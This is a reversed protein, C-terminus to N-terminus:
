LDLLVGQFRQCWRGPISISGAAIFQNVSSRLGICSSAKVPTVMTMLIFSMCLEQLRAYYLADVVSWAYMPMQM